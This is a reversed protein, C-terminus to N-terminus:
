LVGCVGLALKGKGYIKRATAPLLREETTGRFALIEVHVGPTDGSNPTIHPACGLRHARKIAQRYVAPDAVPRLFYVRSASSLDIGFAARSVDM